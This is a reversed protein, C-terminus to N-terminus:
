ISIIKGKTKSILKTLNKVQQEDKVVFFAKGGSSISIREAYNKGYQAMYELAQGLDRKSRYDVVIKKAEILYSIEEKIIQRIDSQKM